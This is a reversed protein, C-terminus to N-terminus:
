SMISAVIHECWSSDSFVLSTVRDEPARQWAWEFQSLELDMRISAKGISGMGAICLGEDEPGWLVQELPNLLHMALTQPLDM